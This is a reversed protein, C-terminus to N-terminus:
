GKNSQSAAFAWKRGSTKLHAPLSPKHTIMTGALIVQNNCGASVCQKARYLAKRRWFYKSDDAAAMSPRTPLSSIMKVIFAAYELFDPPSFTKIPIAKPMLLLKNSFLNACVKLPITQRLHCTGQRIQRLERM